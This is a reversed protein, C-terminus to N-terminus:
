TSLFGWTAAAHVHQKGMVCCAASADAGGAGASTACSSSHCRICTGCSHSGDGVKQTRSNTQFPLPHTGSTHRWLGAHPAAM